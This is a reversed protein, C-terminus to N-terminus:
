ASPADLKRGTQLFHNLEREWDRMFDAFHTETMQAIRANGRASLATFTYRVEARTRSEPLVALAVVIEVVLSGPSVHVYAVRLHAADFTELVWVTEGVGQSRTVFLTGEGSGAAQWRMEPEWGVAWAKEGLPTLLPLVHEPAANWTQVAVRTARRLEPTSATTETRSRTV